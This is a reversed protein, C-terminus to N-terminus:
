AKGLQQALEPGKSACAKLAEAVTDRRAAHEM